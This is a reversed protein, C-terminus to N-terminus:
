VLEPEGQILERKKKYKHLYRWITMRTVGFKWALKEYSIGREHLKIIAEVCARTLKRPRPM